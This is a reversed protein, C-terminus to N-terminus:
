SIHQINFWCSYGLSYLFHFFFVKHFSFAKLSFPFFIYKESIM